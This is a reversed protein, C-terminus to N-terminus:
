SEALKAPYYLMMWLFKGEKHSKRERRVCLVCLFLRATVAPSKRDSSSASDARKKEATHPCVARRSLIFSMHIGRGLPGCM